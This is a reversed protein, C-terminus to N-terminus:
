ARAAPGLPPDRHHRDDDARPAPLLDPAAAVRPRLERVAAAQPEPRRRAARHGRADGALHRHGDRRARRAHRARADADRGLPEAGATRLLLGPLRRLVGDRPVARVRRGDRDERRHAHAQAVRAQAGGGRARARHAGARRAQRHQRPRAAAEHQALAHLRRARAHLRRRGGRRARRGARRRGEPGRGARDRHAEAGAPAPPRRAPLRADRQHARPPRRGAPRARGRLVRDGARRRDHGGPRRAPPKPSRGTCCSTPWWRGATTSSRSVPSSM